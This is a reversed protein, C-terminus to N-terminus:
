CSFLYHPDKDIRVNKQCIDINRKGNITSYSRDVNEVDRKVINMSGSLHRFYHVVLSYKCVM